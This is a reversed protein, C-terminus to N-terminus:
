LFHHIPVVVFYSAKKPGMRWMAMELEIDFSTVFASAPPLLAERSGASQRQKVVESIVEQQSWLMKAAADFITSSPESDRRQAWSQETATSM